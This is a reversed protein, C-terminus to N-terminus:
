SNDPRVEKHFTFHNSLPQVTPSLQSQHMTESELGAKGWGLSMGKGGANQQLDICPQFCQLLSVSRERGNSPFMNELNAPLIISLSSSFFHQFTFFFFDMWSLRVKNWMLLLQHFNLLLDLQIFKNIIFTAIVGHRRHLFSPLPWGSLSCMYQYLTITCDIPILQLSLFYGQSSVCFTM